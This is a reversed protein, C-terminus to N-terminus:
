VYEGWRTKFLVADSKEDFFIEWKAFEIEVIEIGGKFEQKNFWEVIENSIKKSSEPLFIPYTTNDYTREKIADLIKATNSFNQPKKQKIKSTKICILKKESNIPKFMKFM